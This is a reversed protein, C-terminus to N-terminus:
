GAMLRDLRLLQFIALPQGTLGRVSLQGGQALVRKYLSVVAGIGSSDISRLASMDVAVPSRRENVLSDLAMRSAPSSLADFSGELRVLTEKGTDERRFGVVGTSAIDFDMPLPLANFTSVTASTIMPNSKENRSTQNGLRTRLSLVMQALPMGTNAVAPLPIEEYGGTEAGRVTHV